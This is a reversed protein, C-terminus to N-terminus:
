HGLEVETGKLSLLKSIVNSNSVKLRGEFGPQQGGLYIEFKGPEIVRNGKENIMSFQRAKLTFEVTKSEGAKLFIRKFEELQHKPRPTSAEIDKLYLQVVEEGDHNGNNTITCSVKVDEGVKAKSDVVMNSYEFNTYSLGYGFPYLPEGDFYRYTRGKMDYNEFPPLQDVSKYYTMPLRGAPNYDGFLIDAIANGGEEGPYGATLIADVHENAWNISLASGALLTLVVPKGTEVMAKMLERQQKPLDLHLRDGGKFGEIEVRMQEGELRQSLGLALIVVDASKALEVAENLINPNPMCWLLKAEADGYHNYYNMEVKYRKGAELQLRREKHLSHHIVNYNFLEEGDFIIQVKPMSWTGISYEGSVPPVVYGTWRISFNDDKLHPSPTGGEWYFNIDDDIKTYVPEGKLDANDFYEGIVGQKGDETELFCSPIPELNYKKEALHCGPAYIVEAKPHMKNKVGDFVTVPNKPVGTYNGILAEFNNANPGIVAIRKVDKSLPLINNNNKLLVVSKQAAERALARHEDNCVVSLPISAFPVKEDSDFMGLRFRATLLRSLVLDIDKETVYNSDIAKKLHPYTNGCNLDCGRIVGLAAAQAATETIKHDRYIDRIAGCDSVVYGEFDWTKRLIEDMLFSHASCSEGRFRNYAGMVSYVKGDLVTTRFAPLYTEHLDRDSVNADFVHRLPEPGSHVAYHKSTAIAKFYKPHDGQIGKIFQNALQGTLYPDEGYTEHGRGWRPDRFININPSWFTLGHYIGPQGKRLFDHYKARGEDSIVTGIRFMLDTDFSAAVSISQPFVTAYGARAVGHLCENWWGYKEIGLHPIAPSRDKLQSIKEELTMRDILDEVRKEIPLSTDLYPAEQASIQISGILFLILLFRQKIFIKM